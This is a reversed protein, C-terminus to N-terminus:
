YSWLTLGIIGWYLLYIAVICCALSTLLAHYKIWSSVASRRYIARVVQFLGFFSLVLFAWGFFLFLGSGVTFTTTQLTGSVIELSVVVGIFAGIALLPVAQLLVYKKRRVLRVPVWVLLTVFALLITLLCIAAVYAQTYGWWVPIREYATEDLWQCAGNTTRVFVSTAIPENARRFQTSSVPLLLKQDGFLSRQYWQGEEETVFQLDALRMAFQIIDMTTAVPQYCGAISAEPQIKKSYSAKTNVSAAPILTDLLKQRIAKLAARGDANNLLIVYGVGLERSYGFASQFGGYRGDHGYFLHGREATIMLGKGYGYRIGQRARWSTEPTELSRVSSPALVQQGEFQGSSLLTRVLRSMDTISAVLSGAPWQPLDPFPVTDYHTGTYGQALYPRPVEDPHYTAYSMGLPQFIAQKVLEEFPAGAKEEILHAALIAGLNNYAYYRGPEWRTVLSPSSIQAVERLPTRSTTRVALDLHAEDFGSTHELLHILRVPDTAEWRNDFALAPAMRRIPDRLHIKDQEQAILATMALLTKAISGVGFLTQATIPRRRAHDAYGVTGMWLISDRTVMAVGAGPVRHEELIKLVQARLTDSNASQAYSVRFSCLTITISLSLLKVTNM